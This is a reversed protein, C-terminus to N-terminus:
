DLRVRKDIGKKFIKLINKQGEHWSADPCPQAM